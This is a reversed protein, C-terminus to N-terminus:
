PRLHAHFGDHFCWGERKEERSSGYVVVSDRWRYLHSFPDLVCNNNIITKREWGGNRGRDEEEQTRPAGPDRRRSGSGGLLSGLAHGRGPRDSSNAHRSIFFVSSILMSLHVLNAQLHINKFCGRVNKKLFVSQRSTGIQIPLRSISLRCTEQNM